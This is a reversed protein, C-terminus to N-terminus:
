KRECDGDRRATREYLERIEILGTTVFLGSKYNSHQLVASGNHEDIIKYSMMIFASIMLPRCDFNSNKLDSRSIVNLPGMRRSRKLDHLDM